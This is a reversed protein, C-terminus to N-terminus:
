FLALQWFSVTPGGVIGVEGKLTGFTQHELDVKVTVDASAARITYVHRSDEVTVTQPIPAVSQIVVDELYPASVWFQIFGPPDSHLNLRMTSQAGSRVFREYEIHLPAGREGAEAHSMPGGMGTFGLGASVIFVFLVAVGIRQFLWERHQFALDEDIELTRTKKSMSAKGEDV